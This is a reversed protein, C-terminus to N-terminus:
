YKDTRLAVLKAIMRGNREIYVTIRKVGTPVLSISSPDAPNVWAVTVSHRWGASNALTSGMRDQPPSANWLNYDDVDDFNIRSASAEGSEPGFLPLAGGDVYANYLIETMLHHALLEGRALEANAVRSRTVAGLLDMAGLLVISALLTSVVVEILSLGGRRVRRRRVPRQAVATPQASM